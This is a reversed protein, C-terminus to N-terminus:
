LLREVDRRRGATTAGGGAPAAAPLSGPPADAADVVADIRLLRLGLLRAELALAVHHGTGAALPLRAVLAARRRDARRRRRRGVEASRPATRSPATPASAASSSSPWAGPSTESTRTASEDPGPASCTARVS